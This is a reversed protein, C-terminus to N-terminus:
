GAKKLSMDEVSVPVEGHAGFEREMKGRVEHTTFRQFHSRDM